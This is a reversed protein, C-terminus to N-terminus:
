CKKGEKIMKTLFDLFNTDNRTLLSIRKKDDNSSFLIARVNSQYQIFGETTTECNEFNTMVSGGYIYNIQCTLLLLNVTLFNYKKHIKIEM